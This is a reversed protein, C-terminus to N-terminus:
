PPPHEATAQRQRAVEYLAVAAAVSANLSDLRGRMDLRAFHSCERRVGRTVGKDEAGIVL